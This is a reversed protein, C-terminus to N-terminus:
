QLGNHEGSGCLFGAASDSLWDRGTASPISDGMMVLDFDGHPINDIADRISEAPTLRYGVSRWVLSESKSLL